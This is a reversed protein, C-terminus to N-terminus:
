QPGHAARAARITEVLVPASQNGWQSRVHTLVDALEQDKLYHFQPMLPQYKGAPSTDPRVGFMVWAALAAADGNVTASGPLAPQLGMGMGNPGHCGVCNTLYVGAGPTLKAAAGGGTGGAGCGTLVVALVAALMRGPLIASATVPTMGLSTARPAVGVAQNGARDKVRAGSKM